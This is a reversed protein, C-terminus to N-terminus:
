HGNAYSISFIEDFNSLQLMTKIQGGVAALNVHINHKSAEDHLLLLMGLAASDIFQLRAFDLTVASANSDRLSSIFQRFSANDSFTFTGSLDLQYQDDQRTVTFEM